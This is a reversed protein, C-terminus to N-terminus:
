MNTSENIIFILWRVRLFNPDNRLSPDLIMTFLVLKFRSTFSKMVQGKYLARSLSVGYSEEMVKSFLLKLSFCPKALNINSLLRKM